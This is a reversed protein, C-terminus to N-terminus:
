QLDLYLKNRLPRHIVNNSTKPYNIKINAHFQIQKYHKTCQEQSLQNGPIYVDGM